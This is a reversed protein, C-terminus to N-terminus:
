RFRQGDSKRERNMWAVSGVLAMAVPVRAVHPAPGCGYLELGLVVVGVGLTLWVGWARNFWMGALGILTVLPTVRYVQWVDALGACMGVLMDRQTAGLYFGFINAAALLVIVGRALVGLTKRTV